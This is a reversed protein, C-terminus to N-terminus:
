IIESAAGDVLGTDGLLFTLRAIPPIKPKIMPTPNASKLWNNLRM